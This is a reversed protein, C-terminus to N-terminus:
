FDYSLVLHIINAHYDPEAVGLFLGRQSGSDVAQMYLDMVDKNFFTETYREYDYELRWTLRKTLHYSASAQLLLFASETDPYDEASTPLFTPDSPNGPIRTIITGKAKAYSFDLI